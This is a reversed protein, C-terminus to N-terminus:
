RSYRSRCLFFSVSRRMNEFYSVVQIFFFISHFSLFIMTPIASFISIFPHQYRSFFIALSGHIICFVVVILKMVSLSMRKKRLKFSRKLSTSENKNTGVMTDLTLILSIHVGNKQKESKTESHKYTTRQPQVVNLVFTAIHWHFLVVGFFNMERDIYRWIKTRRALNM